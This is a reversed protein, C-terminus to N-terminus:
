NQGCPSLLDLLSGHPFKTVAKVAKHNEVFGHFMYDFCLWAADGYSKGGQLAGM